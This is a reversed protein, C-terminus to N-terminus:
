TNISSFKSPSCKKSPCSEAYNCLTLTNGSSSQLPLLLRTRTLPFSSWEVTMALIEIIILTMANDQRQWQPLFVNQQLWFPAKAKADPHGQNAKVRSSVKALLQWTDKPQDKYYKLNKNKVFRLLLVILLDDSSPIALFLDFFGNSLIDDKPSIKTPQRYSIVIQFWVNINGLLTQHFVFLCLPQTVHRQSISCCLSKFFM